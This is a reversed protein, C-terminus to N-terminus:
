DALSGGYSHITHDWCGEPTEYLFAGTNVFVGGRECVLFAAKNPRAIEEVGWVLTDGQFAFKGYKNEETSFWTRLKRQTKDTPNEVHLYLPGSSSSSSPTLTLQGSPSLQFQGAGPTSPSPPLLLAPLHPLPGPQLYHHFHPTSVARIWLNPPILTTPTSPFPSTTSSLPKPTTTITSLTTTLATTPLTTSPTSPTTTTQSPTTTAAGPICQAYYPNYITCVHGSPCVTPGNFAMGGCQGWPSANAQATAVAAFPLVSIARM